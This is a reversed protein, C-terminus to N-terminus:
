SIRAVAYPIVAEVRLARDGLQVPELGAEVLREVEFANFGGEPGIALTVAGAVARPCERQAQPHAVFGRSNVLLAGLEDEAFPRFRPHLTVEPLRTDRAQELGELLQQQISDSSLAESQWYSKEVRRAHILAIRKVGLTTAHLLVRKLVLPRPLAVVLSLARPAPPERVLSVELELGDDALALIRGTGVKGGLLGVCLEDGVGARQIRRVHECRRGRLYVRSADGSGAAEFDEPRLLVLNM